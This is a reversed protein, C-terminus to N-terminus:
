PPSRGSIAIGDKVLQAYREYDKACGAVTFFSTTCVALVISRAIQAISLTM